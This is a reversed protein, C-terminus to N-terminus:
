QPLYFWMHKKTVQSLPGHRGEQAYLIIIRWMQTANHLKYFARECINDHKIRLLGTLWSRPTNNDWKVTQSLNLAKDLTVSSGPMLWHKWCSEPNLTNWSSTTKDFSFFFVLINTVPFPMGQNWPSWFFFITLGLLPYSGPNQGTPIVVFSEELEVLFFSLIWSLFPDCVKFHSAEWRSTNTVFLAPSSSQVDYTLLSYFQSPPSARHLHSLLYLAQQWLMLAQTWYGLRVEVQPRLRYESFHTDVECMRACVWM